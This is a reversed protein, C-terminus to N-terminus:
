GYGVVQRGEETDPTLTSDIEWAEIPRKEPIPGRYVYPKKRYPPRRNDNSASM